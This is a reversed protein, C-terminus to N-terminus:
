NKKNIPLNKMWNEIFTVVQLHSNIDLIPVIARIPKASAIALIEGSIKELYGNEYGDELGSRTVIIKPLTSAKYGETLVIDFNKFYRDVITEVSLPTELKSVLAFQKESAIVMSDAGAHTFRYSDKGQHDIEFDHADHKIAGVKYGRNKLIPIIAEILTTKGSGSHGVFSVARTQNIQSKWEAINGSSLIRGNEIHIIYDCFRRVEDIAHSVFLIPIQTEKKVRELFPFIESKSTSDLASLPEDLLLIQPKMLLSRAIAVRQREGGSLQHPFKDLLGNLGLIEIIQNFDSIVEGKPMRKIAYQLNGQVTLHSFLNNEQFVYGISRKHSPLFINKESNEWVQGNFKLIGKQGQILGAMLRLITTKGSGSRGFLATVGNGPIQFSVDLNFKGLQTSFEAYIGSM